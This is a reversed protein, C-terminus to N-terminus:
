TLAALLGERRESYASKRLPLAGTWARASHTFDDVATECGCVPFYTIQRDLPRSQGRPIRYRGGAYSALSLWRVSVWGQALNPPQAMARVLGEPSIPTSRELDIPWGRM